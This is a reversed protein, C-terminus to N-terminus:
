PPLAAGIDCTGLYDGPVCLGGSGVGQFCRGTLEVDTYALEFHIAGTPCDSDDVTSVDLPPEDVPCYTADPYDLDLGRATLSSVAAAGRTVVLRGQLPDLFELPYRSFDYQIPIVPANGPGGIALAFQVTEEGGWFRVVPQCQLGVSIADASLNVEGGAVTESDLDILVTGRFSPAPPSCSFLLAMVGPIM